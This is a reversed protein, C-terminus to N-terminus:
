YAGGAQLELYNRLITKGRSSNLEIKKGSIPDTIKNYNM